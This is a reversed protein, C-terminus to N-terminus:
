DASTQLAFYQSVAENVQANMRESQSKANTKRICMIMGINCLIIAIGIMVLHVKSFVMTMKQFINANAYINVAESAELAARVNCRDPRVRYASCIAQKLDDFDIDGRYTFDNILIMPHAILGHDKAWVKDEFLM